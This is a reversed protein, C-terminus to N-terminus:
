QLRYQIERMHKLGLCYDTVSSSRNQHKSTQLLTGRYHSM